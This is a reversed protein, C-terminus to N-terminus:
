RGEPGTAIDKEPFSEARRMYPHLVDSVRQAGFKRVLDLVACGLVVAPIEQQRRPRRPAGRKPYPMNPKPHDWEPPVVPHTPQPLRGHLYGPARERLIPVLSEPVAPPINGPVPWDRFADAPKAHKRRLGSAVLHYLAHTELRTAAGADNVSGIYTNHGPSTVVSVYFAANRKTISM